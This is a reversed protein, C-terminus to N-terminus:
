HASSFPIEVQFLDVHASYLYKHQLSEQQFGPAALALPLKALSRWLALIKGKPKQPYSMWNFGKAEM